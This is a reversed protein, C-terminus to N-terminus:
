DRTTGDLKCKLRIIDKELDIIRKEQENIFGIAYKAFWALCGICIGLIIEVVAVASM